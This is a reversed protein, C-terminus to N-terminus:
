NEPPPNLNYRYVRKVFESRGEDLLKGIEDVTLEDDSNLWVTIAHVMGSAHYIVDYKNLVTWTGGKNEISYRAWKLSEQVYMDLFSNQGTYSLIKSYYNKNNYIHMAIERLAAGGVDEAYNDQFLMDRLVRFKWSMLDYKDSFYRYFTTRALGSLELINRITIEEIDKESLLEELAISFTEKISNEVIKSRAMNEGGGLVM